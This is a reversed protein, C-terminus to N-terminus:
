PEEKPVPHLDDGPLSIGNHLIVTRLFSKCPATTTGSSFATRPLLRM